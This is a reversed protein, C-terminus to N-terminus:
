DILRELLDVKSQASAEEPAAEIEVWLPKRFHQGLQPSLGHNSFPVVPIPESGIRLTEDLMRPDEIVLDRGGSQEAAVVLDAVCVKEVDDRQERPRLVHVASVTRASVQPRRITIWTGCKDIK